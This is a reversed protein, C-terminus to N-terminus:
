PLIPMVARCPAAGWNDIPTAAGHVQMKSAPQGLRPPSFCARGWSIGVMGTACIAVPYNEKDKKLTHFSAIRRRGNKELLNYYFPFKSDGGIERAM